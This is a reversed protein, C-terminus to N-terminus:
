KRLDERAKELQEGSPIIVHAMANHELFSIGKGKITNAIIMLPKTSKRAHFDNFATFIKTMVSCINLIIGSNEILIKNKIKM